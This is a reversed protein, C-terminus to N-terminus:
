QPLNMISASSEDLEEASRLLKAQTEWARSTEIMDVLAATMNVNSEELAGSVVRANEDAPLQGDDAVHFLTDSGKSIASGTMSVLKLRGVEQPQTPDGGQPVVFVTGDAGIDVRDSPPVTVPGSEGLVPFGDGTVMAGSAAIRLDGRRSYAEKGDTTQVALMADGELAIDLPRGTQTMSGSKMDAQMDREVALARSDHGPGNLYKAEASVMDAKFGVTNSNAMNNAIATQRKMLTQMTNVSTYAIKDM